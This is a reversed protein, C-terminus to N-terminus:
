ILTVPTDLSGASLTSFRCLRYMLSRFNGAENNDATCTTLVELGSSMSSRSSRTLSCLM